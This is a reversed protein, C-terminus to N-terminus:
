GRRRRNFAFGALIMLSAASPAPISVIRFGTQNTQSTALAGTLGSDSRNFDPFGSGTQTAWSGGRLRPLNPDTPVGFTETWESVNGNQDFTGFFSAGETYSGVARHPHKFPLQNTPSTATQTAWYVGRSDRSNIGDAATNLATMTNVGTAYTWYNDADGGESAPQFYAAKYWEDETPLAFLANASRGGVHSTPGTLTYVGSETSGSGEGNHLWNVFRAADYWTVNAIPSNERGAILTYSYSGASGARNIGGVANGAPSAWLGNPDSQAVSNLFRAYQANTVEFTGMQYQYGVAGVAEGWGNVGPANGVYGIASFQMSTQGVPMQFVSQASAAGHVCALVLLACGCLRGNFSKM